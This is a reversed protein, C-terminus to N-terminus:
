LGEWVSVWQGARRLDPACLSFGLAFKGAVVGSCVLGAAVLRRFGGGKEGEEVVSQSERLRQVEGERCSPRCAEDMDGDFDEAMTLRCARRLANGKLGERRCADVPKPGSSRVARRPVAAPSAPSRLWRRHGIGRSRLSVVQGLIPKGDSAQGSAAVSVELRQGHGTWDDVLTLVPWSQSLLLSSKVLCSASSLVSSPWSRMWFTAEDPVLSVLIYTGGAGRVTSIPRPASGRRAAVVQPFGDGADQGDDVGLLPRLQTEEVLVLLVGRDVEAGLLRAGDAAAERGLVLGAHQLLGLLAVHM